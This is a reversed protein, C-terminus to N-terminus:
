KPEHVVQEKTQENTQKNPRVDPLPHQRNYQSRSMARRFSVSSRESQFVSVRSNQHSARSLSRSVHHDCIAKARTSTSRRTSHQKEYEFIIPSENLSDTNAFFVQRNITFIPQFTYTFGHSAVLRNLPLEFCVYRTPIISPLPSFNPSILQDFSVVSASAVYVLLLISVTSRRVRDHSTAHATNCNEPFYRLLRVDAHRRRVNTVNSSDTRSVIRFGSLLSSPCGYHVFDCADTLFHYFCDVVFLTLEALVLQTQDTQKKNDRRYDLARIHCHISISITSLLSVYM